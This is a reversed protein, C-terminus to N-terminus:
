TLFMYREKEIATVDRFGIKDQEDGLGAPADLL